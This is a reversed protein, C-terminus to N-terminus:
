HVNRVNQQRVHELGSSTGRVGIYTIKYMCARAKGRRSEKRGGGVERIVLFNTSSVKKIRGAKAFSNPDRV